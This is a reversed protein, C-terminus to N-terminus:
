ELSQRSSCKDRAVGVLVFRPCRGRFDVSRSGAQLGRSRADASLGVSLRVLPGRSRIFSLGFSARNIFITFRMSKKVSPALIRAADCNTFNMLMLRAVESEIQQTELATKLHMAHAPARVGGVGGVGGECPPSLRRRSAKKGGQSPPVCPPEELAEANRWTRCGPAQFGSWSVTQFGTGRPFM